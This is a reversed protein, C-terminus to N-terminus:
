PLPLLASTRIFVYIINTVYRQLHRQRERARLAL